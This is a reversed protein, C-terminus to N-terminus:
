KAALAFYARVTSASFAIPLGRFAIYPQSPRSPFLLPPFPSPSLKTLLLLYPSTLFSLPPPFYPSSGLSEFPRLSSLSPSQLTLRHTYIFSPSLHTRILATQFNCPFCFSDNFTTCFPSFAKSLLFLFPVFINKFLCSNFFHWATPTMFLATVLMGSLRRLRKSLYAPLRCPRSHFIILLIIIFIFLFRRCFTVHGM